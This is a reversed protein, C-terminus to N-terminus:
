LGADAEACIADIREQIEDPLADTVPGELIERVKKRAIELSDRKEYTAARLKAPFMRSYYMEDPNRFNKMSSKHALFTGGPGEEKIDETLDTDSGIRIGKGIRLCRKAIEDETLIMELSVAMGNDTTGIGDILDARGLYTPMTEFSGGGTVACPLGYFRAMETGGLSVLAAEGSKVYEGTIPDAMGSAVGYIVPWGPHVTEFIVIASLVEANIQCLTSFISAPSTLGIMPMPYINVPIEYDALALYAELMNKDQTLPSVPCYLVSAIKRRIVEERSGTVTELIQAAYAAEYTNSLEFQVHKSTGSIIAAMEHLCHTKEPVDSASCGTWCAIGTEAHQFVRGVSVVDSKLSERREGTYIDYINTCIGSMLHRSETSPVQYDYKPNRAGLTFSKPAADLAKHVMEETFYVIRKDDDTRAGAKKLADFAVPSKVWIGTESLIEMTRQHVLKKEEESFVKIEIQM